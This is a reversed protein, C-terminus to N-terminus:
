QKLTKKPLTVLRTKSVLDHWTMAEPHGVAWLWGLCFFLSSAFSALYRIICVALSPPTLQDPHDTKITTLHVRWARMGVTQGGRRWSWCFYLGTITLLYLQFLFSSAPIPGNYAIVVPLAALMWIAILILADYILCAFRRLFSCKKCHSATKNQTNNM